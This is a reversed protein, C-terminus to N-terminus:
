AAFTATSLTSESSLRSHAFLLHSLRLPRVFDAGSLSSSETNSTVYQLLRPFAHHLEIAGHFIL